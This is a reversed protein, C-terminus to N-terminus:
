NSIIGGAPRQHRQSLHAKMISQSTALNHIHHNTPVFKGHSHDCGGTEPRAVCELGDPQGQGLGGRVSFVSILCIIKGLKKKQKPLPM